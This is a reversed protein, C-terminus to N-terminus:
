IRRHGSRASYNFTVSLLLTECTGVIVWPHNTQYKFQAWWGLTLSPFFNVQCLALEVNSPMRKPNVRNEPAAQIGGRSSYLYKMVITSHIKSQRETTAHSLRAELNLFSGLGLGGRSVEEGDGGKEWRTRQPHSKYKNRQYLRKGSSISLAHGEQTEGKGEHQKWVRSVGSMLHAPKEWM